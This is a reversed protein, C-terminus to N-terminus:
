HDAICSRPVVKVDVQVRQGRYILQEYPMPVYPKKAKEQKFMRLRKMFLYLSEPKRTYGQKKSLSV